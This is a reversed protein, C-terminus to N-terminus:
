MPLAAAALTKRLSFTSRRRQSATRKTAMPTTRSALYGCEAHYVRACPYASAFGFELGVPRSGRRRLDEQQKKNQWMRRQSMGGDLYDGHEAKPLLCRM